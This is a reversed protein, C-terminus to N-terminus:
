FEVVFFVGWNCVMLDWHPIQVHSNGCTLVRPTQCHVPLFLFGAEWLWLVRYSSFSPLFLPSNGSSGQRLTNHAGCSWWFPGIILASPLSVPVSSFRAIFGMNFILKIDHPFIGTCYSRILDLPWCCKKGTGDKFPELSATEHLLSSKSFYLM